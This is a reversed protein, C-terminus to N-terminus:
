AMPGLLGGVPSSCDRLEPTSNLSPAEPASYYLPRLLYFLTKPGIISYKYCPAGLITYTIM